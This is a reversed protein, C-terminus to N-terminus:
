VAKKRLVYIQCFQNAYPSQIKKNPIKSCTFAQGVQEFFFQTVSTDRDEMCLLVTTSYSTIAILVKILPLVYDQEFSFSEHIDFMDYFTIKLIKRIKM